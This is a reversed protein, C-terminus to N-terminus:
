RINILKGGLRRYKRIKEEPETVSATGAVSLRMRGRVASVQVTIREESIQSDAQIGVFLICKGNVREKFVATVMEETVGDKERAKTSGVVAAEYACANMVAKDHYYFIGMVSLFFVLLVVPVIYVMEVTIVGSLEKGARRQEKCLKGKM